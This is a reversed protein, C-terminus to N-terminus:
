WDREATYEIRSSPPPVEQVVLSALGKVSGQCRGASIQRLTYTGPRYVTHGFVNRSDTLNETRALHKTGPEPEYQLEIVAEKANVDKKVEIILTVNANEKMFLHSGKRSAAPQRPSFGATPLAQVQYVLKAKEVDPHHVNHLGDEVSLVQVEYTGPESHDITLPVNREYPTSDIRPAKLNLQRKSIQKEADDQGDAQVKPTDREIDRRVHQTTAGGQKTVAWRVTMPGAGKIRVTEVDSDGVCRVVPGSTKKKKKSVSTEPSEVFHGASPCEAVIVPGNTSKVTFGYDDHDKVGLLDIVGTSKVPLYYLNEGSRIAPPLASFKDDAKVSRGIQNPQDRIRLQEADSGAISAEVVVDEDEYWKRQKYAKETAAKKPHDLDKASITFM